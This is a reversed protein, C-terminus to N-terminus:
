RPPPLWRRVIGGYTGARAPEPHRERLGLTATWPRHIRGYDDAADNEDDIIWRDDTDHFLKLLLRTGDRVQVDHEPTCGYQRLSDVFSALLDHDGSQMVPYFNERHFRYLQPSDQVYLPFRHVGTPIHAIHTALDAITRFREDRAGNDFTSSNPLRYAKFYKWVRMGFSRAQAPLAIDPYLQAEILWLAWLHLDFLVEVNESAADRDALIRNYAIGTAERLSGCSRYAVNTRETTADTRRDGPPYLRHAFIALPLLAEFEDCTAWKPDHELYPSILATLNDLAADRARADLQPDNASAYTLGILAEVSDDWINQVAQPKRKFYGIMEDVASAIADQADKAESQSWPASSLSEQLEGSPRWSEPLQDRDPICLRDPGQAAVVTSWALVLITLSIWRM